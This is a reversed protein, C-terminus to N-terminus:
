MLNLLRQFTAPANCLGIPIVLYEFFGQPTLFATKPEYTKRLLVQYYSQSLDFYSFVAAKVLRDFLDALYPIPFINLM